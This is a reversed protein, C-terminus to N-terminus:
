STLLTRLENFIEDPSQGNKIIERIKDLKKYKAASFQEEETMPSVQLWIPELNRPDIWKSFGFPQSNKSQNINFEWVNSAHPKFSEKNQIKEAYYGLCIDGNPYRRPLDHSSWKGVLGVPMLNHDTTVVCRVYSNFGNNYHVTSGPTLNFYFEDSENGSKKWYQAMRLSGEIEQTTFAREVGAWDVSEETVVAIWTGRGRKETVIWLPNSDAHVSRFTTGVEIKM